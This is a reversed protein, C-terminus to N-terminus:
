PIQENTIQILRDCRVKKIFLLLIILLDRERNLNQNHKDQSPSIIQNNLAM